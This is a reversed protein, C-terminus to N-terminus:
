GLQSKVEQFRGIAVGQGFQLPMSTIALLRSACHKFQWSVKRSSSTIESVIDQCVKPFVGTYNSSSFTREKQLSRYIFIMSINFRGATTPKIANIKPMPM